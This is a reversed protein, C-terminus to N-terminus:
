SFKPTAPLNQPLVGSLKESLTQAMQEHMDAGSHIYTDTLNHDIM